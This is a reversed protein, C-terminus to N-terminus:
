KIYLTPCLLNITTPISILGYNIFLLVTIFVTTQMSFVTFRRKYWRKYQQNMLMSSIALLVKVWVQVCIKDTRSTVGKKRKPVSWLVESSHVTPMKFLSLQWHSCLCYLAFCLVVCVMFFSSTHSSPCNGQEVEALFVRCVPSFTKVKSCMAVLSHGYFYQLHQSQLSLYLFTQLYFFNYIHFRCMILVPQGHSYM